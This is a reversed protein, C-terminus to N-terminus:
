NFSETSIPTYDNDDIEEVKEDEEEVEYLTKFKLKDIGTANYRILEASHLSHDIM